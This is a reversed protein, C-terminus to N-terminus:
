FSKQCLLTDPQILQLVPLAKQDIDLVTLQAGMGLFAHAASQGVAGAGIIVVEAPPVGPMGGLLVGKGGANNQMQYAAIQAALRGGIKSM